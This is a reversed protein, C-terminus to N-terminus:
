DEEEFAVESLKRRPTPTIEEEQPYGFRLLLQPYTSIELLSQLRSRLEPVAVVQNLFSAQIGNSAATLLLKQLSLGAELWNYPNDEPTTILGLFTSSATLAEDNHAFEDTYNFVKHTLPALIGELPGLGFAYGPVGDGHRASSRIWSAYEQRTAKNSGLDKDAECIMGALALRVSNNTLPFFSTNRDKSVDIFLDIIDQSIKEESFPKRYSHRKQIAKFLKNDKGPKSYSKWVIRSLLDPKDADPLLTVDATFGFHRMSLLLNYLAAGCSIINERGLPDRNSQIRSIDHYLEITNKKLKFIWPQANWSSPALIAYHLLFEVKDLDNMGRPYDSEKILWSKLNTIM